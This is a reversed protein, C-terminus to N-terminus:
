FLEDLEDVIKSLKACELENYDCIKEYARFFSTEPKNARPAEEATDGTPRPADISQRVKELRLRIQGLREAQAMARELLLQAPSPKAPEAAPRNTEGGAGPAETETVAGDDDM